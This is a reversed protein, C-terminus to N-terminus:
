AATGNASAGSACRIRAARSFMPLTTSTGQSPPRPRSGRGVAETKFLGIATEALANDCADGVGGISASIGEQVLTEAFAVAAV